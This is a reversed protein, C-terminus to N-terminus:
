DGSGSALSAAAAAIVTEILANEQDDLVTRPDFLLRNDMIRGIVPTPAARLALAMQEPNGEELAVLWTPLVSGPLSGGGVTSEGKRISAKIKAENFKLMWGSARAKVEDETTAIMRWVPIESEARELVYARLTASLAALCMKDARVARALPHRKIKDILAEAGCLIGAQPGGLLKDGSFAVIDAGAQLSEQVTVESTLGYQATDTVAGSGQDYLVLIGREHALSALEDLGPESTFGVVQFNSHHAVM